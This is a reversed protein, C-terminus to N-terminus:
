LVPKVKAVLVERALEDPDICLGAHLAAAAALNFPRHPRCVVDSEVAGSAHATLLEELRRAAAVADAHDQLGDIPEPKGDSTVMAEALFLQADDLREPQTTVTPPMPCYEALYRLLWTLQVLGTALSGAGAGASWARNGDGQRGRGLDRWAEGDVSPTPISLPCEMALAVRGGSNLTEVLLVGLTSPDDSGRPTGDPASWAFGGPRRVSGIDVGITLRLSTTRRDLEATRPDDLGEANGAGRRASSDNDM